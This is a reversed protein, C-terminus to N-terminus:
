QPREDVREFGGRMETRMRHIELLLVAGDPTLTAPNAVFGQYQNALVRYANAIEALDPRQTEDESSSEEMPEGDHNDAM